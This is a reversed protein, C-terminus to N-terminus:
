LKKKTSEERIEDRNTSKIAVLKRTLRHLGLNVKGFAGKGLVKGIKYFEVRTKPMKNFQQTCNRIIASLISIEKEKSFEENGFFSPAKEVRGTQTLNKKLDFGEVFDKRVELEEECLSDKPMTQSFCNLDEDSENLVSGQSSVFSQKKVREELSEESKTGVPPKKKSPEHRAKLSGFPTIQVMTLPVSEVSQDQIALENNSGKVLAQSNALAPKDHTHLSLDHSKKVDLYVNFLGKEEKKMSPSHLTTKGKIMRRRKSDGTELNKMNISPGNNTTEVSGSTMNAIISNPYPEKKVHM